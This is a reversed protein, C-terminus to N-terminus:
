NDIEPLMIRHHQRPRDTQVNHSEESDDDDTHYSAATANGTIIHHSSSNLGTQIILTIFHYFDVQILYTLRFCFM